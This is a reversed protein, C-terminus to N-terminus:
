DWAAAVTARASRVSSASAEARGKLTHLASGTTLAGGTWGSEDPRDPGGQRSFPIALLIPSTKPLPISKSNGRGDSTTM